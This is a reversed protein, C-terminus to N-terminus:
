LKAEATNTNADTPRAALAEQGGGVGSVSGKQGVAFASIGTSESITNL